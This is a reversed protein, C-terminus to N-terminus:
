SRQLQRIWDYDYQVQEVGAMGRLAGILGHFSSAQVTQQSVDCEYSSPFPNEDLQGVVDSVNTFYSRFRALAEQRTVFRRHALEPHTALFSDVAAIQPPTADTEFYISVRSHGQWREVGASSTRRWSSFRGVVLLSIAIM